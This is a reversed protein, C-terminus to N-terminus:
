ELFGAYKAVKIINEPIPIAVAEHTIKSAAIINRIKVLITILESSRYQLSLYPSLYLSYKLLVGLHIPIGFDYIGPPSQVKECLIM